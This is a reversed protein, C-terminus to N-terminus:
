NNKLPVFFGQTVDLNKKAPDGGISFGKGSPSQVVLACGTMALAPETEDDIEAM